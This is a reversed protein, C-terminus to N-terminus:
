TGLQDTQGVFNSLVLWDPRGLVVCRVASVFRHWYWNPRPKVLRAALAIGAGLLLAVCIVLKGPLLVHADTFTIGAFITQDQFLLEFRGLYERLALV